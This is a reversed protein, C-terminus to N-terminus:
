LSERRLTQHRRQERILWVAACAAPVTVAALCWFTTRFAGTTAATGPALGDTLTVVLLSSGLAGGIRSCINAQASADQLQDRRVIAMAAAVAPPGALALGIGRAAQLVEVAALSIGPGALAMPTTALTTVILGLTIIPGSGYRDSLRGAFPFTVIAALEFALMLLGTDIIPEGRLIQFYLPMVIVGGFLSIGSFLRATSAATYARSAFLRLDLLPDRHRLSRSTFAALAVAGGGLCLGGATTSAVQAQVVAAIGYVLLPLGTGALVLGPLDLRAQRTPEGRPVSRLGAALAVIGVPVNIVFLWRWSLAAIIVAGATPGLAPALVTPVSVMAMVRGLRGPGAADALIATGVSVLLGGAVGQLGRFVILLALDPALGCLGSFVTFAALSGLWLRGAGARRAAWASAPLVGAMALLYGSAIWQTAGLSAGLERHITDLGVNVLASDLGSMFAGFTLIAALRWVPAPIAATARTCTGPHAVAPPV